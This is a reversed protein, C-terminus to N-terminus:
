NEYSSVKVCNRKCKVFGRWLVGAELELPSLTIPKYAVNIVGHTLKVGRSEPGSSVGTHNELRIRGM